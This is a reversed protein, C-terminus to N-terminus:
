LHSRGTRSGEMVYHPVAAAWSAGHPRVRGCQSTINTAPFYHVQFSVFFLLSGQFFFIRAWRAYHSIVDPTIPLTTSEGFEFVRAAAERTAASPM